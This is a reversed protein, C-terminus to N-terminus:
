VEDGFVGASDAAAGKVRFYVKPDMYLFHMRRGRRAPEVGAWGTRAAELVQLIQFIVTLAPVVHRHNGSTPMEAACVTPLTEFSGPTLPRMHTM